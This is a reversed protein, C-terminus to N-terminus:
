VQEKAVMWTIIDTQTVIMPHIQPHWSTGEAEMVSQCDVLSSELKKPIIVIALSTKFINVSQLYDFSYFLNKMSIGM